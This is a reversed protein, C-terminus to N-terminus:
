LCASLRRMLEITEKDSHGSRTALYEDAARVVEHVERARAPNTREITAVIIGADGRDPPLGFEESLKRLVGSRIERVMRDRGKGGEAFFRGMANIYESIDRRQTTDDDLAPGLFVARRWIRVCLLALIGFAVSAYSPRTLLYLPQGRVGLGHYFEDFVVSNGDPSLIYTAFVANDSKGLLRNSLLAPDAVVIIEGNGRKFRAALMVDEDDIRRHWVVSGDPETPTSLAAVGDAPITLKRVSSDILPFEGEITVNAQMLPPLPATLSNFFDDVVADADRSNGEPRDRPRFADQLESRNGTIAVDTLGLSSLVDPPPGDDSLQQLQIKMLSSVPPALVVIRGGQQVWSQLGNLYSPNTAVLFPNPRAIILTHQDSQDPEPPALTRDVPINLRGLTEYIGRFGRGHTGYSDAAEGNSDPTRLMNLLSLGIAMLFLLAAAIIANRVSLM